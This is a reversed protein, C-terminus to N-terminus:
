RKQFAYLGLAVWIFGFGAWTGPNITEGYVLALLFHCSPVVYQGMGMTSLPIRRAAYAFLLLPTATFFGAFSLAIWGTSSVDSVQLGELSAIAALGLLAAPLLLTTELGLSVVPGFPTRKKLLGYGGWTLAIVLAALPLRGAVFVLVLVGATALSVAVLRQRGLVEKEVLCGLSVQVLPCLFYGLSSELVRGNTVAWIFSFWNGALLLGALLSFGLRKPAQWARKFDPWSGRGPLLLLCALATLGIRILVLELSDFAGLLKWYIPFLGWIAFALLIAFVGKTHDPVPM